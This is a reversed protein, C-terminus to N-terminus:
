QLKLRSIVKTSMHSVRSALRRGLGTKTVITIMQSLEDSSRFQLVPLPKRRITVPFAVREEVKTAYNTIAFHVIDVLPRADYIKPIYQVDELIENIESTFAWESLELLFEDTTRIM